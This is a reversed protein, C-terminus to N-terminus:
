QFEFDYGEIDVDDGPQAGQARLAAYVGMRDLREGLYRIAEENTLDFRSVLRRVSQGRVSFGEKERRVVFATEDGSQPRYVVHGGREGFSQMDRPGGPLFDSTAGERATESEQLRSVLPGVWRLLAGLGAGTAASVPWVLWHAGPIDDDVLYTFAPHGEERLREIEAVFRARQEEVTAPPLADIKNLVVIQPKEALGGAHARLESLITHFGELPEVGYYGTLDIVHILLRCRELHALFEHGLGVGEAAGELLGPVDALTFRDGEGSWDIVGLMPEVTTFPYSAVKPKANSLRRLLSSKGANPLGALGADAVLKLSLKLWRSEGMEGLEAFKPAQRVSTAFRANGHGGSGGRAVMVEQGAYVLDALLMAGTEGGAGGWAEAVVEGGAKEYSELDDHTVMVGGPGTGADAVSWVQTGLPVPIRITEGNAGHKRAGQGARGAGAKYHIKYTFPQLDRLQSDAVLVVDGGRGGDGGDPGGRPVYKERRFSVCGNGGKGAAVHIKAQDFFM